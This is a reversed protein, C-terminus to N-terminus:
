NYLENEGYDYEDHPAGYEYEEDQDAQPAADDDSMGDQGSSQINPQGGDLSAFCFDTAPEFNPTGTHAVVDGSAADGPGVWHDGSTLPFSLPREATDYNQMDPALYDYTYPSTPWMGTADLPQRSMNPAIARQEVIEADATSLGFYAAAANTHTAMPPVMPYLHCGGTVADIAPTM